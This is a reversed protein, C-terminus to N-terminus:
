GTPERYQPRTNLKEESTLHGAWSISTARWSTGSWTLRTVSTNALPPVDQHGILALLNRIYGGHSVALFRGSQYAHVTELFAKARGSLSESSEEDPVGDPYGARIEERTLGEAGGFRRERLRSDTRYPKGIAHSLLDATERARLLDSAYFGKFPVGQLWGALRVSQDKGNANLPIDSWGQIRGEHNWDTEGHRVLWLSLM